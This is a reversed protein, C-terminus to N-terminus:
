FLKTLKINLIFFKLHYLIYRSYWSCHTSHKWDNNIEDITILANFKCIYLFLMLLQLHISSSRSGYWFWVDGGGGGSRCDEHIMMLQQFSLFSYFINRIMWCM